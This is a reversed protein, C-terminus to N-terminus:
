RCGASICIKSILYADYNRSDKLEEFVRTIEDPHLFGM